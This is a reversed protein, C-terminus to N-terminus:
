FDLARGADGHEGVADLFGAASIIDHRVEALMGLRANSPGMLNSYNPVSEASVHHKGVHHSTPADPDLIAHYWEM